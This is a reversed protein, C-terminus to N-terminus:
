EAAICTTPSNAAPRPRSRRAIVELAEEITAVTWRPGRPRGRYRLRVHLTEADRSMVLGGQAALIQVTRFTMPRSM